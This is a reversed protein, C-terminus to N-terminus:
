PVPVQWAQVWRDAVAWLADVPLVSCPEARRALVAQM